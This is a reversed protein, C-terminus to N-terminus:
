TSGKAAAFAPTLQTAVLKAILKRQEDFVRVDVVLTTRGHHVIEAEATLTGRKAYRILDIGALSLM